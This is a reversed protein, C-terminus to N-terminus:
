PVSYGGDATLVQGTVYSSAESALFLCALAIEDPEGFRGMPIKARFVDGADRNEELYRIMPTRTVGPALANVRIGHEIWELAMVKTLAILGAKSSIYAAREPMVAFALQSAVNVIAGRRAAIM